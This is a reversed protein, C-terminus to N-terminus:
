GAVVGSIWGANGPSKEGRIERIFV